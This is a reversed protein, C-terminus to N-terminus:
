LSRNVKRVGAHIISSIQKNASIDNLPNYFPLNHHKLRHSSEQNTNKQKHYGNSIGINEKFRTVSPGEIQNELQKPSFTRPNQAAKQAQKDNPSGNPM